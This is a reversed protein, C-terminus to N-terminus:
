PDRATRFGNWPQRTDPTWYVKRTCSLVEQYERIAPDCHGAVRYKDALDVHVPVGKPFLRIARRYEAEATREMKNEFLVSGYAHHARYSLPADIVTLLLKTGLLAAVTGIPSLQVEPETVVVGSFAATPLGATNWTVPAIGPAM